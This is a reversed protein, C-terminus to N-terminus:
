DELETEVRSPMATRNTAILRISNTFDGLNMMAIVASFLELLRSPTINHLFLASLRAIRETDETYRTNPKFRSEGLTAIALIHAAREAHRAALQKAEDLPTKGNVRAEDITVEISERAIRDLTSLTPEAITFSRRERWTRPKWLQYWRRSCVVEIAFTYGENILRGLENRELDLM